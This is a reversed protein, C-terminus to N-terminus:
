LKVISKVEAKSSIDLKNSYEVLDIVCGSEITVNEGSVRKAKVDKLCITTAEIENVRVNTIVDHFYGGIFQGNTNIKVEEGYINNFSGSGLRGDFKEANIEGEVNMSGHIYLDNAEIDGLIKGAGSIKGEIVKLKGEIKITGSSKFTKAVLSEEITTIGSSKFENCIVSGKVTGTGAISVVDYEGSQITGVGVIKINEM